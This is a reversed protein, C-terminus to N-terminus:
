SSARELSLTAQRLSQAANVLVNQIDTQAPHEVKLNGSLSAHGVLQPVVGQNDTQLRAVFQKATAFHEGWTDHTPIAIKELAIDVLPLASPAILTAEAYMWRATVVFFGMKLGFRLLGLGLM